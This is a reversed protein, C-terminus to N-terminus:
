TTGKTGAKSILMSAGSGIGSMLMSGFVSNKVTVGRAVSNIRSTMTADNGAASMRNNVQLDKIMSDFKTDQRLGATGADQILMATSQGGVGAEGAATKTAEATKLATLAADLRNGSIEEAQRSAQLNDQAQNLDRAKVSADRNEFYTKDQLKAQQASASNEGATKAGASLASLAMPIALAGM